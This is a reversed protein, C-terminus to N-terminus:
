ANTAGIMRELQEVLEPLREIARDIRAQKELGKMKDNWQRGQIKCYCKGCLKGYPFFEKVGETTNCDKCTAIPKVKRFM